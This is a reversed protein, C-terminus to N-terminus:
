WTPDDIVGNRKAELTVEVHLTPRFVRFHREIWRGARPLVPRARRPYYDEVYLTKHLVFDPSLLRFYRALERLSYEKWHHGHTPTAIIDDVSIGGGMRSRLRAPNWLRGALAYYNPTTVIIRGGPSLVRHIERWMRVPNFTLHEIIETFLVIDFTDDPVDAFASGGSLDSYAILDIEFAKALRQVSDLAITGPFDASTVRYGDMAYLVSQHLWHAGVDLVRGGSRPWTSEFLGKTICFRDYHTDLYGIDTEGFQRFLDAYQRVPLTKGMGASKQQRTM